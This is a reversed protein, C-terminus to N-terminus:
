RKKTKSTLEIFIFRGQPSYKGFAKIM